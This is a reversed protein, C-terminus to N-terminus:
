AAEFKKVQKQIAAGNKRNAVRLDFSSQLRLWMEASTGFYAALRLANELPDGVNQYAQQAWAEQAVLGAFMMMAFAAVAIANRGRNVKSVSQIPNM